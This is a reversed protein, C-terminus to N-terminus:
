HAEGRAASEGKLLALFDNATQALAQESLREGSDAEPFVISSLDLDFDELTLADIRELMTWRRRVFSAHAAGRSRRRRRPAANGRTRISCGGGRAAAIVPDTRDRACSAAPLVREALWPMPLLSAQAGPHAARRDMFILSQDGGMDRVEQPLMLARRQESISVSHHRRAELSFFAPKLPVKGQRDDRGLERSLEEAEEIDKPAFYIRSALTKLLTRSGHEGYIERLQSPTQMVFLTRINFGPTFGSAKPSSPFAGSRPGRM